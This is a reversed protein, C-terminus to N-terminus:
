TELTRGMRRGRASVSSFGLCLGSKSAPLPSRLKFWCIILTSIYVYVHESNIPLTLGREGLQARTLSSQCGNAATFDLSSRNRARPGPSGCPVRGSQAETQGETSHAGGPAM